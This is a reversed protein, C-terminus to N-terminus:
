QPNMYQIVSAEPIKSKYKENIAKIFENAGMAYGLTSPHVGDFSFLGGSFYDTKVTFGAGVQYGAGTSGSVANIDTFFKHFDVVPIGKATAVTKITLNYSDIVQKILTVEANTLTYRGQIAASPHLGYPFGPNPHVFGTAANSTTRGISSLPATLVIYKIQTFDEQFYLKSKAGTTPNTVVSDLRKFSGPYVTTFYPLATVDPINGTAFKTTPMQATLSDWAKAYYLSFVNTAPMGFAAADAADRPTFPPAGAAAGPAGNVGAGNTAYGLIDNHGEWWIMFTPNLAKAQKFQSGVNLASNRLIADFLTNGVGLGGQLFLKRYDDASSTANMFDFVFAGPVGLNNYPRPLTQNNFVNLTGTVPVPSPSAGVASITITLTGTTGPDNVLPQEWGSANSGANTKGLQRAIIAGYSNVQASQFLGGSQYGATLSNGAVVFTTFNADGSKTIVEIKDASPYDVSCGMLLLSSIAGLRFLKIISKM